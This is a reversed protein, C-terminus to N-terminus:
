KKKLEVRKNKIMQYHFENELVTVLGLRKYLKDVPNQKFYQIYLDQKKHLKMIEKKYNLM